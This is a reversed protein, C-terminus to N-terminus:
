LRLLYDILGYLTVVLFLLIFFSLYFHNKIFEKVYDIIGKIKNNVIKLNKPYIKGLTKFIIFFLFSLLLNILSFYYEKVCYAKDSSFLCEGGTTTLFMILCTALLIILTALIITIFNNKKDM